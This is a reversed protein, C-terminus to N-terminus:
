KSMFEVIYEVTQRRQDEPTISAKGDGDQFGYSGFGSHNGGNIILETTDKPLNEYYEQYKNLNLVKDETGYISLVSMDNESLDATSYAALLIIGELEDSHSDAYSAAMSGGLSHGGIFWCKVEPFRKQVGDAANKDLVALNAPMKVLVCLVGKEALEMLLPAYAKHEVKGGPYFIFGATSNQPVFATYQGDTEIKVTETSTMSSIATEDAHYYDGIYVFVGIVLALVLAASVAAIIYKTRKKM